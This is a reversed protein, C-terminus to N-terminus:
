PRGCPKLDNSVPIFASSMKFLKCGNYCERSLNAFIVHGKISPGFGILSFVTPLPTSMFSYGASLSTM